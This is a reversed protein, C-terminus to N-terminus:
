RPKAAPLVAREGSAQALLREAFDVREELEAVRAESSELQAVREELEEIRTAAMQGTTLGVAERKLAWHRRIGLAVLSAAVIIPMIEEPGDSVGVFAVLMTTVGAHILLDVLDLGLYKRLGTM